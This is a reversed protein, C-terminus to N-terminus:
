TMSTGIFSTKFIISYQIWSAGFFHKPEMKFQMDVFDSCNDYHGFGFWKLCILARMEFQGPGHGSKTQFSILPIKNIEFTENVNGDYDSILTAM